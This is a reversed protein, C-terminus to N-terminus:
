QPTEKNTLKSFFIKFPRLSYTMISSVSLIILPFFILFVLTHALLYSKPKEINWLGGDGVGYSGSFMLIVSFFFFAAFGLLLLIIFFSFAIRFMVVFLNIGIDQFNNSSFTKKMFSIIIVGSLGLVALIDALLSLLDRSFLILNDV